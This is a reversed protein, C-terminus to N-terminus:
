NQFLMERVIQKDSHYAGLSQNASEITAISSHNLNLKALSLTNFSYHRVNDNQFHDLQNNNFLKIDGLLNISSSKQDFVAQLTSFEYALQRIEQEDLDHHSIYEARDIMETVAQIYENFLNTFGSLVMEEDLAHPMKLVFYGNEFGIKAPNVSFGKKSNSPINNKLWAMALILRESAKFADEKSSINIQDSDIGLTKTSIMPLSLMSMGDETYITALIQEDDLNNLVPKVPTSLLKDIQVLGQQYELDLRQRESDSMAPNIAQNILAHLQDLQRNLRLLQHYSHAILQFGTESQSFYLDVGKTSQSNAPVSALALLSLGIGLVVKKM